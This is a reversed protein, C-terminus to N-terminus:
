GNDVEKLEIAHGSELLGFIDFHWKLLLEYVERGVRYFTQKEM